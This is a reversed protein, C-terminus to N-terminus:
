LNIVTICCINYKNYALPPYYIIAGGPQNIVNDVTVPGPAVGDSDYPRHPEEAQCCYFFLVIGLSFITLKIYNKM